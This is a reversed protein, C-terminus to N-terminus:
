REVTDAAEDNFVCGRGARRRLSREGGLLISATLTSSTNLFQRRSTM